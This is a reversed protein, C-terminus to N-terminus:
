VFDSNGANDNDAAFATAEKERLMRADADAHAPAM